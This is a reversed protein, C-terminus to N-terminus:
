NTGSGCQTCFRGNLATGCNGCFRFATATPVDQNPAPTGANSISERAIDPQAMDPSRPFQTGPAYTPQPAAYYQQPMSGAPQYPATNNVYTVQNNRHRRMLWIILLIWTVLELFGAIGLCAVGGYWLGMNNNCSYDSYNYSSYSSSYYSNYLDNVCSDYAQNNYVGLLAGGIVFFIAASIAFGIPWWKTLRTKPAVQSM